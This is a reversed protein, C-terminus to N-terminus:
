KRLKDGARRDLAEYYEDELIPATPDFIGRSMNSSYEEICYQKYM